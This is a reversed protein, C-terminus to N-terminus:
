NHQSLEQLPTVYGCSAHANSFRHVMVWAAAEGDSPVDLELQADCGCILAVYMGVPRKKTSM